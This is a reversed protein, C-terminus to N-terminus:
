GPAVARHACFRYRGRHVGDLGRGLCHPLRRISARRASIGLKGTFSSSGVYLKVPFDGSPESGIRLEAGSIKKLYTQLERAALRQTRTPTKSIIIEARAEGNEVLFSEAGAVTPFLISLFLLLKMFAANAMTQHKKSETLFRKM